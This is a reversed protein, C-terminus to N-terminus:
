YYEANLVAGTGKISSLARLDREAVQMAQTAVTVDALGFSPAVAAVIRRSLSTLYQQPISEDSGNWIVIGKGALLEIEASLTEEAFALDSASPVEEAGILGADRLIRTAFDSKTYTTM